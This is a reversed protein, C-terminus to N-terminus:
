RSDTSSALRVVEGTGLGYYAEIVLLKGEEHAHRLVESNALLDRASQHANERIAADLLGDVGAYTRARAVAPDIKDVIAQLNATPMKEGSCATTVAGCKEHGLVVLLASGLHEVAYEISGLEIADAINGAARIVFLDGLNQDFVLVSSHGFNPGLIRGPTIM